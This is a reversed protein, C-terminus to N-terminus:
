FFVRTRSFRNAARAHSSQRARLADVDPSFQSTVVQVKSISEVSPQFRFGAQATTATEDLGDITINNVRRAARVPRFTGAEEPTEARLQRL